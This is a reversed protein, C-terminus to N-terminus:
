NLVCEGDQFYCSIYEHIESFDGNGIRPILVWQYNYQQSIPPNLLLGPRGNQKDGYDIVINRLKVGELERALRIFDDLKGTPIDTQIHDQTISLLRQIKIPNLLVGLSFIKDSFASLVKQQRRSRAFDTGESGIANRSRVYKLATEGDFYQKGKIFQVHEFRCPFVEWPRISPTALKQIEEEPLGCLDDEKGPIPYGFDELTNEVEIELGSIADVAKVFGDFDVKVAYHIELGTVKRVVAQSLIIGSGEKKEQAYTYATNIKSSLEPVWLDRPISILLSERAKTDISLVMMTDTLDKGERTGGATGLLLINTREDKKELEVNRDFILQTIFVLGDRAPQFIAVFFVLFVLAGLILTTIKSIRKKQKIDEPM